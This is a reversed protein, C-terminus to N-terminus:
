TKLPLTLINTITPSNVHQKIFINPVIDLDWIVYNQKLTLNQYHKQHLSLITNMVKLIMSIIELILVCIKVCKLFERSMITQHVFLHFLVNWPDQRLIRIGAFSDFPSIKKSRFPEHQLKWHAYLDTLKTDLVFYDNIFDLTQKHNGNTDKKMVQSYHIHTSDQKLLVIRDQITFSWVNNINKWRFTQGCRLVKQLSVEVETIPLSKWITEVTM